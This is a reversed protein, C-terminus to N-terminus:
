QVRITTREVEQLGPTNRAIIFLEYSHRRSLPPLELIQMHFRYIGPAVHTSNISFAATRVEVSAVNTSAIITGDFWMGPELTLTSFWIRIIRPPANPQAVPPRPLVRPSKASVVLNSPIPVVSWADLGAVADGCLAGVRGFAAGINRSWLKLRDFPNGADGVTERVEALAEDPQWDTRGTLSALHQQGDFIALAESHERDAPERGPSVAIFRRVFQLVSRPDGTALTWYRPDQSFLEGYRRLVAPRDYAPDLTVELLRSGRPLDRQMVAFKASTAACQSADRCRTHMFALVVSRGRLQSWRFTRGAQNVFPQDTPLTQGVQLLPVRSVPPACSVLVALLPAIPFTSRDIM